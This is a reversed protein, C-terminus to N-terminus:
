SSGTAYPYGIAKWAEFGGELNYVNVTVNYLLDECFQEGVSGNISYVLIDTTSNFLTFPNINKIAGPLHGRNFECPGCGEIGRCDIITLNDTNNMLNYATEPNVNLFSTTYPNEKTIFFNTYILYTTGTLIILLLIIAIVKEIKIKTKKNIKGPM